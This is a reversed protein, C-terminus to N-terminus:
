PTTLQRRLRYVYDERDRRGAPGPGERPVFRNAESRTWERSAYREVIRWEDARKEVLDIYRFGSTFNLHPSDTPTGWHVAM